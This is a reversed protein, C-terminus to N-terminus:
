LAIAKIEIEDDTEVELAEFASKSLDAIRGYKFFGGTDTVEAGVSKLNRINVLSVRSGLPLQSLDYFAITFRTDDLREGNAM